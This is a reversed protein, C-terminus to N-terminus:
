ISRKEYYEPIVRDDWDYRLQDDAIMRAKENDFLTLYTSATSDNQYTLAKAQLGYILVNHNPVISIDYDSVLSPIHRYYYYTLIRGNYTSTPIPYLSIQPYANVKDGPQLKMITVVGANSSVTVTGNLPSEVGSAYYYSITDVTTYTLTSVVPTTGNLTLSEFITNGLANTGKVFIFYNTTDSTSTSVVSLTSASTPQTLVFSHAGKLRYYLPFGTQSQASYYTENFIEEPIYGVKVVGSGTDITVADFDTM